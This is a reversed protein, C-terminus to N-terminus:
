TIKQEAYDICWALQEVIKRSSFHNLAVYAIRDELERYDFSDGLQPRRLWPMENGRTRRTLFVERNQGDLTLIRVKARSDIPGKFCEFGRRFAKRDRDQPTSAFIYPYVNEKLVQQIPLGDIHTVEDGIRLGSDSIEENKGLEIIIIKGAIPKVRLPLYDYCLDTTDFGGFFGVSTHGDQLKAILRQLLQNYEYLTQEKLVEPIYEELVSDWDLEPVQSFFAFNYKVESWLRTFATVRNEQSIFNDKPKRRNKRIEFLKEKGSLARYKIFVKRDNIEWSIHFGLDPTAGYQPLKEKAYLFKGHTRNYGDDFVLNHWLAGRDDPRSSPGACDYPCLIVEKLGHPNPEVTLLAAKEMPLAVDIEEDLKYHLSVIVKEKTAAIIEEQTMSHWDMTQAKASLVMFITIVWKVIGKLNLM